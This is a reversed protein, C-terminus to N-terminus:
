KFGNVPLKQCMAWACLSNADYYQVYSSKESKDHSKMHKNNAKAYTFVAQCIRGRIGKEVM